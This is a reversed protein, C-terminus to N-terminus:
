QCQFAVRVNALTEGAGNSTTRVSWTDSSAPDLVVLDTTDPTCSTATGITCKLATASGKKYLTTVGSNTANSGGTGAVAYFNKATCKYPVPVEVATTTASCNASSSSEAPALVFTGSTTGVTSLCFAVLMTSAQIASGNLQYGSTANVTPATVSTTFSPATSSVASDIANGSGDWKVLNGSTLTGSATAIETTNGSFTASISTLPIKGSGNLTIGSDTFDVNGSNNVLSVLDKNVFSSITGSVTALAPATGTGNWTTNTLTSVAANTTSFNPNAGTDTSILMAGQQLSAPPNAPLTIGWSKSITSTPAELFFETANSICPPPNSACSPVANAAQTLITAGAVGTSNVANFATANVMGVANMGGTTNGAPAAVATGSGFDYVVAGCPVGTGKPLPTPNGTAPIRWVTCNKAGSVLPTTLFNYQVATLGGGATTWSSISNTTGLVTSGGTFDTATVGYTYSLTCGTSCNTGLSTPQGPTKLQNTTLGPLNIPTDQGVVPFSTALLAACLTFQVTPWCKLM